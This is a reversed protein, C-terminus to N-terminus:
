TDAARTEGSHDDALEPLVIALFGLAVFTLLSAVGVAHAWGADAIGLFGIGAIACAGATRGLLGGVSASLLARGGPAPSAVEPPRDFWGGLVLRFLLVLSPLLILSGAALAVLLAVLTDHPAAAQQVTLDPLLVPTQALAWGVVVAAVALAASYRALEFRGQWVLALTAFGGVISAILAVRGDGNVLGEYLPKADSHLVVLGGLAIAGAVVGTGLARVRFRRMLDREGIREADASLYVAALYASVAVALVGILISTANLWSSFLDGAANGVPVRLSAIGGVAAGLAFPTLISSLSFLTDILGVERRGSAGSRLAYASGRLIIGVAAIFLPVTLTSAISAFAVPYATWMVVIVFILWVHNAEWVPGMSKHAQERLPEAEPGRGATLQWFGAGFDAGGLVTYLVLGLLALCLPIDYLHM